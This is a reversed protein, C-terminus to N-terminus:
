GAVAALMPAILLASRGPWPSPAPDARSWCAQELAMTALGAMALTTWRVRVDERRDAALRFRRERGAPPVDRRAGPRRDPDLPGRALPSPRLPAKTPGSRRPRSCSSAIGPGDGSKTRQWDRLGVDTTVVVRLGGDRRRCEAIPAAIRRPDPRVGPGLRALADLVAASRARASGGRAPVLAGDLVLEVEAGQRIWGEALSAAVRIAWERSGDPGSGAHAAPHADLVIQVRPVANSQVERVILEGHRATLGWHVRRLPDGRRYPRVGLPDGWHGARDRTALGDSAQRGDAEPMPGVPFTRPWVLLPEAVDLPRSAEWLGFPFGCAM